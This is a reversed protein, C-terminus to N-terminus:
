ISRPGSRDGIVERFVSDRDLDDIKACQEWEVQRGDELRHGLGAPGDDRLSGDAKRACSRLNGRLDVLVPEALEVRRDSANGCRERRDWMGCRQDTGM